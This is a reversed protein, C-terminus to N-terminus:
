DDITGNAKRIDIYADYFNNYSREYLYKIQRKSLSGDRNFTEIVYHEEDPRKLIAVIRNNVKFNSGIQKFGHTDLKM